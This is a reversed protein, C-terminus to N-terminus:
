GKHRSYFWCALLAGILVGYIAIGGHWIKIIELPNNKYDYWQFVVFYIRAGVLAYHLGILFLEMFLDHIAILLGLLAGIGIIIGYWQVTLAGLSFTIPSVMRNRFINRVNWQEPTIVKRFCM